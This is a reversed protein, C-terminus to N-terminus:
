RDVRKISLSPSVRVANEWMLGSSNVYLTVDAENGCYYLIPGGIPTNNSISLDYPIATLTLVCLDPVSM